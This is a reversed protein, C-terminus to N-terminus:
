RFNLDKKHGVLSYDNEIDDKLLCTCMISHTLVRLKSYYLLQTLVTCTMRTDDNYMYHTLRKMWQVTYVAICVCIYINM